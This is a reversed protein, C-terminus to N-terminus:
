FRAVLAGALRNVEFVAGAAQGRSSRQEHSAILSVGSRRNFLYGAEFAATFRRDHRDVGNYDQGRWGLRATLILNRLLEHDVTVAIRSSLSGASGVQEADEVTRDGSVTLTTLPTAFWEIRATAALSQINRAAPDDFAQRVYGAAVQGRVLAGMEFDAGLLAEGSTSNRAPASERDRRDTHAQVFVAAASSVAYDVRGTLRSVTRDRHDQDVEEGSATDGDRFDLVRHDIRLMTRLRGAMRRGQLHVESTDVVIPDASVDPADSAGRPEARRFRGAGVSVDMDRTLDLRGDLDLSADTSDERTESAHRRTVGQVRVGLAHRSWTSGLSAGAALRLLSDATADDPAAYLNDVFETGVELRPRFLFGGVRAGVAEYEPHPRERVATGRDRAFLTAPRAASQAAAHTAWASVALLVTAAAFLRGGVGM